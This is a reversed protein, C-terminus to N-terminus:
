FNLGRDGLHLTKDHINWIGLQRTRLTKNQGSSFSNIQMSNFVTKWLYYTPSNPRVVIMTRNILMHLQVHRLVPEQGLHSFRTNVVIHSELLNPYHFMVFESNSLIKTLNETITFEGKTVQAAREVQIIIEVGLDTVM